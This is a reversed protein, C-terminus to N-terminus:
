TATLAPPFFFVGVAEFVVVVVVVVVVSGGFATEVVVVTLRAPSVVEALQGALKLVESLFGDQLEGGGVIM